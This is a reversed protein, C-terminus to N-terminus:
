AKAIRNDFRVQYIRNDAPVQFIRDDFKVRYEQDEPVMYIFGGIVFPNIGLAAAIAAAPEVQCSEMVITPDVALVSISAEDPAFLMSGLIIAPDIASIGAAAEGPGVIMSGLVIDPNIGAASAHAASPMVVINEGAHVTPDIGTAAAIAASPSLLLSGLIIAPDISSAAGAACSPSVSVSGLLVAPDIGTAAGSAQGPSVTINGGAEVTPQIVAAAAIAPSPLLLLSGLIVSPSIASGAALAAGPAISLSGLLVGPAIGEMGGIAPNPGISLSGLIIAPAIGSGSASAPSPTVLVGGSAGYTGAAIQAIESESLLDKFIAVEDILGDYQGSTSGWYRGICLRGDEVNLENSFTTEINTGVKAGISDSVRAFITKNVGHIAFGVHYWTSGNATLATAHTIIEESAGNNYGLRFMLYVQGAGAYSFGVQLSAKSSEYKAFVSRWFGPSPASELRVWFAGSIIKTTDGNKLPFGADLSSDLTYLFDNDGSEIDISAAGEKYNTTDAVPTGSSGLDNNGKSDTILAGNEFRWLAVCNSDSSFDNAM